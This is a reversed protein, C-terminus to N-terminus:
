EAPDPGGAARGQDRASGHRKEHLERRKELLGNMSKVDARIMRDGRLEFLYLDQSAQGYENWELPAMSWSFDQLDALRQNLDRGKHAADRSFVRHAFRLFDFGLSVWFDPEGQVTDQLLNRLNDMAPDPNNAWWAGPMLALQYFQRDLKSVHRAQQSWLAPGLFVLRDEDFFYFEPILIQAHHFSDPIFVAGFDPDERNVRTANADQGNDEREQFFEEPVRLFDAVDQKWDSPEDQRYGALGTLRGQHNVTEKWFASAMRRGYEGKPYLIGFRDIGLEEMAAQILPRVQDGHSPFFRYGDIGEEAPALTSRFAFFTRKDQLNNQVVTEWIRGRLPGGVLSFGSPLSRLQDLWGDAETNITRVQVNLGLRSLQYQAVEAGRLVKWGIDQYGGSLPLLLAVGFFPRQYYEELFALEMKLRELDTLEASGLIMTLEQWTDTWSARGFLFRKMALEWKLLAYPYRGPDADALSPEVRSWESEEFTSMLKLFEDELEFKQERSEALGYIREQVGWARAPEDQDLFRRTLFWAAEQRVRWPIDPSEMLSSLRSEIRGPDEHSLADIRLWAWTQRAGPMEGAWAQLHERSKQVKGARLASAAAREWAQVRTKRDLGEKELVRLYLSESLGYRGNTWADEARDQLRAFQQEPSPPPPIKQPACGFGLVLSLALLAAWFRYGLGM